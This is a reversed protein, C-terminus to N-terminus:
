GAAAHFGEGALQGNADLVVAGVMPNPSTTFRGLAALDLAREM